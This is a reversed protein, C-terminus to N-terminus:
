TIKVEQAETAKEELFGMVELLGELVEMVVEMGEELDLAEVLAAEVMIVVETTLAVEEAQM